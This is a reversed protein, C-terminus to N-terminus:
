RATISLPFHAVLFFVPWDTIHLVVYDAARTRYRREGQGAAPTIM